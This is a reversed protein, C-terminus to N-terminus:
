PNMGKVLKRVLRACGRGPLYAGSRLLCAYQMALQRYLYEADVRKKTCAHYLIRATDTNESTNKDYLLALYLLAVADEGDPHVIVDETRSLYDAWKSESLDVRWMDGDRGCPSVCFGAGTLRQATEGCKEPFRRPFDTVYLGKEERDPRLFVKEGLLAALEDYLAREAM